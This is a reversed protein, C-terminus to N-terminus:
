RLLSALIGAVGLVVFLASVAFSVRRNFDDAWPKALVRQLLKFGLSNAYARNAAMQANSLRRNWRLGALGMLVFLGFFIAGAM